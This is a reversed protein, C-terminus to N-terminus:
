IRYKNGGKPIKKLNIMMFDEMFNVQFGDMSNSNQLIQDLM